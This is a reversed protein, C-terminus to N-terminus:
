LGDLSDLDRIAACSRRAMAVFMADAAADRPGTAYLCGIMTVFTAQLLGLRYDDFCRDLGYDTIGRTCLAAHYEAVLEHEADRRHETALSTGLFYALDRTPPGIDLTQWDVVVVDEDDAGFMLNDLRFDGHVVAFPGDRKLQWETMVAAASRLTFEDSPDLDAHFRDIFFEAGKVVLSSLFEANGETPEPIYPLAFLSEDNRRPAHLAALHRVVSKARTVACGAVQVGAVRPALDDLLLTFSLADDAIVAFRCGPTPVDVTSAIDRYFGVERRYGNRVKRRAESDGNATKAVLRSPGDDSVIDLRFTAGTQGTGIREVAVSHIGHGLM